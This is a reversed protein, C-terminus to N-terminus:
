FLNKNIFGKPVNPNNNAAEAQNAPYIIKRNGYNWCRLAAHSGANTSRFFIKSENFDNFGGTENPKIVGHKTIGDVSFDFSNFANDNVLVLHAGEGLYFEKWNNTTTYEIFILM